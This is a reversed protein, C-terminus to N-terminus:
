RGCRRHRHSVHDHASQLEFLPPSIVPCIKGLRRAAPAGALGCPPLVAVAASREPTRLSPTAQRSPTHAAARRPPRRPVVLAHAQAQAPLPPQLLPPAQHASTADGLAPTTSWPASTQVSSTGLALVPWRRRPAWMGSFGSSLAGVATAAEPSGKEADGGGGDGGVGTM